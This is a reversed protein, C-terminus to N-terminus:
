IVLSSLMNIHLIIWDNLICLEVTKVINLTRFSGSCILPPVNKNGVCVM